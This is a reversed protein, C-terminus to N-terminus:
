RPRSGPSREESSLGPPTLAMASAWYFLPPSDRGWGSRWISSTRRWWTGTGRRRWIRRETLGTIGHRALAEGLAQRHIDEMTMWPVEGANVRDMIPRPDWDALLKEWAVSLGRARGLAVLAELVGRRWDVITGYTDFLLAQVEPPM